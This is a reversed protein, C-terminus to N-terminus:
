NLFGLEKASANYAAEIDALATAADEKSLIFDAMNNGASRSFLGMYPFMPQRKTGMKIADLVPLNVPEPVYGELLWVTQGMTEANLIDPSTGHKMAVFTAAADEDSINKAVTWGDWYLTSAPISGGGVTLPPGVMTNQHVVPESGEADQLGKTRSSWMHMLAVNGADWEANTANTNHTLFDPNMYGTLKKLMELAAVAKENNITLKATGPEFIQGGMGYYMDVFQSGLNIGTKYPGGVPYQMIGAARTKEAADLLEEYTKPPTVAVKELVDKRYVLHKTAAMFAIAMVKGDVVIQRSKPIDQGYKAILDDLPRLVGANLLSVVSGTAVIATTYEAPNAQMGPLNVSRHKRTPNATVTLTDTACNKANAIITHIAPFENGVISVRGKTVECNAAATGPSGALLASGLLAALSLGRIHTTM